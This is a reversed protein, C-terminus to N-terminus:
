MLRAKTMDESAGHISLLPFGDGKEAYEIPGAVTNSIVGDRRASDQPRRFENKYPLLILGAGGIVVSATLLTRGTRQM